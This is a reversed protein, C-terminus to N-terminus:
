KQYIKLSTLNLKEINIAFNLNAEGMGASTIGIVEGKMNMLPGGSSGNTIETTTQLYKKNERYGSIIGTSLTHELGKPNGIAFVEEGIKPLQKAVNLYNLSRSSKVKFIIFDNSKDKKLVQEIKLESGNSLKIIEAGENTGEFVHYNSIGIGDSSIFFGSGQYSKTEDSTYVLFIAEKNKEFLDVLSLNNSSPKQVIVEEPKTENRLARGTKETNSRQKEATEQLGSRSCGTCGELFLICIIFLAIHQAMKRM